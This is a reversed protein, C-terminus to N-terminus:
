LIRLTVINMKPNNVNYLITDQPIITIVGKRTPSALLPNKSRNKAYKISIGAIINENRNNSFLFHPPLILTVNYPINIIVIDYIMNAIKLYENIVMPNIKSLNLKLIM